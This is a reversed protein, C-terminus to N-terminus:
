VGPRRDTSIQERAFARTGNSHRMNISSSNAAGPPGVWRAPRKIADKGALLRGVGRDTACNVNM